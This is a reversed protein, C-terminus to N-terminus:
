CMPNGTFFLSYSANASSIVVGYFHKGFWNVFHLWVAVGLDRSLMDSEVFHVLAQKCGGFDKFLCEKYVKKFIISCRWLQSNQEPASCGMCPYHLVINITSSMAFLKASPPLIPLIPAAHLSSVSSRAKNGCVVWFIEIRSGKICCITQLPVSTSLSSHAAIVGNLM